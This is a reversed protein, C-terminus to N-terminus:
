REEESKQLWESMWEEIKNMVKRWVASIWVQAIMREIEKM